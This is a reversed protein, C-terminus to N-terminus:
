QSSFLECSVVIDLSCNEQLAAMFVTKNCALKEPKLETDCIDNGGIQLIIVNPQFTHILHDLGPHEILTSVKVESVGFCQINYM